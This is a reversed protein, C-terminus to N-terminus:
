SRTGTYLPFVLLATLSTFSKIKWRLILNWPESIHVLKGLRTFGLVIPFFDRFANLGTALKSSHLIREQPQEMGLHWQARKACTMGWEVAFWVCSGQAEHRPSRGGSGKVKGLEPWASSGDQLATLPFSKFKQRHCFCEQLSEKSAEGWQLTKM